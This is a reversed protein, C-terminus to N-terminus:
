LCGPAVRLETICTLLDYARWVATWHRLLEDTEAVARANVIGEIAENVRQKARTHAAEAAHQEAKLIRLSAGIRVTNSPDFAPRRLSM